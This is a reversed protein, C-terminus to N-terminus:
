PTTYAVGVRIYRGRNDVSEMCYLHPGPIHGTETVQVSGPRFDTLGTNNTNM